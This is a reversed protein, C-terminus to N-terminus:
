GREGISVGEVVVGHARGSGNGQHDTEEAQDGGKEVDPNLLLFRDLSGSFCFKVVLVCLVGLNFLLPLTRLNSLVQRATPKQPPPNRLNRDTTPRALSIVSQARM